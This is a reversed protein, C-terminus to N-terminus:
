VKVRRARSLSRLAATNQRKAYTIADPMGKNVSKRLSKWGGLAHPASLTGTPGNQRSEYTEAFKPSGWHTLDQATVTAVDGHISYPDGSQLAKLLWPYSGSNLQLGFAEKGSKLSLYNQAHKTGGPLKRCNTSGPQKHSIVVPNRYCQTPQSKQWATLFSRNQGTDPVDAEALLDAQWGEWTSM